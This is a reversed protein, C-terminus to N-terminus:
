LMLVLLEKLEEEWRPEVVFVAEPFKQRWEEMFSDHSIEDMATQFCLEVLKTRDEENGYMLLCVAHELQNPHETVCGWCYRGAVYFMRSRIEKAYMYKLYCDARHDM